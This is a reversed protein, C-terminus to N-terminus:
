TATPHNSAHLCENCDCEDDEGQGGDLGGEPGAARPCLVPVGADGPDRLAEFLATSRARGARRLAADVERVLGNSTQLCEVPLDLLPHRIM